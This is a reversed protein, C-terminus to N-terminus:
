DIHTNPIQQLYLTRTPYAFEIGKEQFRRYIELNIAQQIDMYTNYDPSKVFYVVEFTLSSDGYEKFHARDYRVNPQSEIIQRLLTSIKSLQELPTQYVVGLTFEVRREYMRKFNRIRSNLLDTNSFVIQEGSLSRLRTTKLGIHEVTGRHENVIIFDGIVFPKDLTISLSAFLDGLINQLALAVAIGGIGLGTVLATINIGLNDLVLLIIIVVLSLRLIFSLGTLTTTSAADQEMRRSMTRKLWFSIATNGWFASQIILSLVAVTEIISKAHSTLTLVLSGIYASLILIFLLKTKKLEEVIFDDIDTETRAAMKSLKRVIFGKFGLLVIFSFVTLSLAILWSQISNGLYTQELLKM